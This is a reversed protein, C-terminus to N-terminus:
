GIEPPTIIIGNEPSFLLVATLSTDPDDKMVASLAAMDLTGRNNVYLTYKIDTFFKAVWGEAVPLVHFTHCLRNNIDTHGSYSMEQIDSFAFTGAPELEAYLAAADQLEEAAYKQWKHELEDYRFITNDAYYLELPSGLVTGKLHRDDGSREGKLVFYERQEGETEMMCSFEFSGDSTLCQRFDDLVSEADPPRSMLFSLLACLAALAAIILVILLKKKM